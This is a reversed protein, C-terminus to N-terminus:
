SYFFNLNAFMWKNLQTMLVSKKLKCYSQMWFFRWSKRTFSINPQHMNIASNKYFRKQSFAAIFICWCDVIRSIALFGLVQSGSYYLLIFWPNTLSDGTIDDDPSIIAGTGFDSGVGLATEVWDTAIEIVRTWWLVSHMNGCSKKYGLNKLFIYVVIVKVVLNETRWRPAVSGSGGFCM